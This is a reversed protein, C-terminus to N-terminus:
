GAQELLTIARSRGHPHRIRGQRQLENLRASIVSTSKSFHSAMERISPAYGEAEHYDSIYDYVQQTTPVNVQRRRRPRRTPTEM